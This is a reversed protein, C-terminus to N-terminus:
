DLADVKLWIQRSEGAASAGYGTLGRGDRDTQQTVGGLPLWDGLRGSVTTAIRRVEASGYVTGPADNATSIELTVRDGALRPQAYFGSGIDRYVISDSVAYGGPVPVYQRMPIPLSQGVQIFARGGEITQVQQAVNETVNRRTDLVQGQIVNGGSRMEIRASGVQGGSTIIRTNGSGVNANVGAGAQASSAQGAHRVSILLRRAPRDLTAIVQRLQELNAPTTRIILLENSGTMAGGPALLPRLEPILQDALRHHLRITEMADQAFAVGSASCLLLLIFLRRLTKM